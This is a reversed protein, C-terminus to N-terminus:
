SIKNLEPDHCRGLCYGLLMTPTRPAALVFPQDDYISSCTWNKALVLFVIIFDADNLLKSDSINMFGIFSKGNGM